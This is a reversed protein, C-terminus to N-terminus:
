RRHRKDHQAEWQWWKQWVDWRDGPRPRRPRHPRPRRPDPTPDPDVPDPTPTVPDPTPDDPTPVPPVPVPDVPTPVVPTPDAPDPSPDPDPVPVPDPTVFYDRQSVSEGQRELLEALTDDPIFGCGITAGTPVLGIGYQSGWSNLWWTGPGYKKVLPPLNWASDAIDEVQRGVLLIFHGGVWQGSVTVLGDPGATYQGESWDIGIAVPGVQLARVTDAVGKNWLYGTILGDTLAADMTAAVTAGDAFARGAAADVEQNRRYRAMATDNTVNPFQVPGVALEHAEGFGTCAGEEGQDLPFPGGTGPLAWFVNRDEVAAADLLPRSLYRLNRPDHETFRRGPGRNPGYRDQTEISM